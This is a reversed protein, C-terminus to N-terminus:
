DEFIKLTQGKALTVVAKKTKKPTHSLYMGRRRYKGRTIMTRVKDVKVDYLKTLAAKVDEKGADLCIQFSYQTQDERAKNSKETVLPRLLVSYPNM